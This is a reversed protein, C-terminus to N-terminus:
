GGSAAKYIYDTFELDSGIFSWLRVYLTRGDTPLGSVTASLNTGQGQSYLDNNGPTTGVFLSYQWVQCGQSWTFTVASGPLTSGNAPTLMAAPSAPTCPPAFATYTYDNFQWAGSIQSLLRV